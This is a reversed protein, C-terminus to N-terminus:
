DTLKLRLYGPSSPFLTLGSGAIPIAAPSAWPARPVVPAMPQAPNTVTERARMATGEDKDEIVRMSRSDIGYDLKGKKNGDTDTPLKGVADTMPTSTATNRTLHVAGSEKMNHAAFDKNAAYAGESLENTCPTKDAKAVESAEETRHAGNPEKVRASCGAHSALAGEITQSRSGSCRAHSALAGEITPSRSGSCRAHRALAGELRM